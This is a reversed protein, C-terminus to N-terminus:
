KILRHKYEGPEKTKADADASSIDENFLKEDEEGITLNLSDEADATENKAGDVSKDDKKAEPEVVPKEVTVVAVKPAERQPKPEEVKQPPDMKEVVVKLEVM